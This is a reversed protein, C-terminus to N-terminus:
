EKIDYTLVVDFEVRALGQPDNEIKRLDKTVPTFSSMTVGYYGAYPMDLDINSYWDTGLAMLTEGLSLANGWFRRKDTPKGWVIVTVVRAQVPVPLFRGGRGGNPTVWLLKGGWNDKPLEKQDLVQLVPLNTSVGYTTDMSRKLFAECVLESTPIKM